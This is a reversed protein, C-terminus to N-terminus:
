LLATVLFGERTRLEDKIHRFPFWLLVGLMLTLLFTYIFITMEQEQYLLAVVIPPLSSTSFLILLIGLIPLIVQFQM